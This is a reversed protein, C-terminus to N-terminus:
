ALIRRFQWRSIGAGARVHVAARLRGRQRWKRDGGLRGSQGRRNQWRSLSLGRLSLRVRDTRFAPNDEAGFMVRYGRPFHSKPNLPCFARMQSNASTGDPMAADVQTPSWVGWRRPQGSSNTMTVQFRIGSRGPIPRIIRFFRLGSPSGDRSTLRIATNDDIREVCYPQGDRAADPPGPWQADNDWGQPAPWLKDGGHNLWEGDPGLGSPPLSKGARRPNVCLFENIGLACQIVRGGLDPAVQLSVFGSTLNLTSWGRYSGATLVDVAPKTATPGLFAAATLTAAYGSAAM